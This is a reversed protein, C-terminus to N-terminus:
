ASRGDGMRDVDDIALGLLRTFEEHARAPDEDVRRLTAPDVGYVEAAALLVKFADDAVVHGKMRLLARLPSRVQKIKRVVAGKTAHLDGLADTIARRMRIQAERLEQEIRLRRHDDAISLSAFPDSGTLVVHHERIDDYLLPYVDAAREIERAELIMAEIRAAYRAIRLANGMAALTAASAADLVVVVDVDSAGAVYGGRVASGHVVISVLKPGLATTLDSVLTDLRRRVDDPLELSAKSEPTGGM